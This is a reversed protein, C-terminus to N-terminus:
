PAPTTGYEIQALRMVLKTVKPEIRKEMEHMLMAIDFALQKLEPTDQIADLEKYAVTCASQITAILGSGDLIIKHPPCLLALAKAEEDTLIPM